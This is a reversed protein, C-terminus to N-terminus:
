LTYRRFVFHLALLSNCKINNNTHKIYFHDFAMTVRWIDPLTDYSVLQGEAQKPVRYAGPIGTRLKSHDSVARHQQILLTVM